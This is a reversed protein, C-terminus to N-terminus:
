PDLRMVEGRDTGIWTRGHEDPVLSNIRGRPKVALRKWRNERWEWAGVNSGDSTNIFQQGTTGAALIRGRAAVVHEANFGTPVHTWRRGDWRFLDRGDALWVDDPAAVALSKVSPLVSTFEPPRQAHWSRGDWRAIERDITGVWVDNASNGSIDRVDREAGIPREEWRTGSWHVVRGFEGAAWVDGRGSGWVAWLLGYSGGLGALRREWREGDWHVVNDGVAWVDDDGSGWVSKFGGMGKDHQWRRGDWHVLGLGSFGVIWMQGSPSRWMADVPYELRRAPTVPEGGISDLPGGLWLISCLSQGCATDPPPGQLTRTSADPPRQQSAGCRALLVPTALALV